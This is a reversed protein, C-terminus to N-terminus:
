RDNHKTKNDKIREQIWKLIEEYKIEGSSISIVFDYKESESAVIDKQYGLLLLRMMVYATRKNGDIFPHNILLSEILAVAKEEPNKLLEEGDFTAYPRALASELLARDRLGESGGFEVILLKHIKLVQEISIM